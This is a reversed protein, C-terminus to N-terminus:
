EKPKLVLDDFYATGVGSLRVYFTFDEADEDTPTIEWSFEQWEESATLGSYNDYQGKGGPGRAILSGHGTKGEGRYYGTLVYTKGLILDVTQGCVLNLSGAIGKIMLCKGTHGDEVVDIEYETDAEVSWAGTSWFEPNGKDDVQEFGANRLIPATSFQLTVSLTNRNPTADPVMVRVDYDAEPLDGPTILLDAHMGDDSQTVSVSGGYSDPSRDNIYVKALRAAIPNIEDSLTLMISEPAEALHGLEITEAIDLATGDLSAADVVPPEGDPLTLWDPKNLLIVTSGVADDPLSFSVGADTTEVFLDKWEGPAARYIPDNVPESAALTIEVPANATVKIPQLTYEEAAVAFTGLVAIVIACLTFVAFNRNM